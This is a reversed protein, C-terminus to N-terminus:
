VKKISYLSWVKTGKLEKIDAVVKFDAVDYKKDELTLVSYSISIEYKGDDTEKINDIVVEPAACDGGEGRLIYYKGEYYYAITQNIGDREGKYELSHDPEVNFVTKLIEDFDNGDFAAFEYGEDFKKLPDRIDPGYLNFFSDSIGYIEKMDYEISHHLNGFMSGIAYNYANSDSCDFIDTNSYNYNFFEKEYLGDTMDINKPETNIYSGGTFLIYEMFSSFKKKANEELSSESKLSATEKKSSSKTTTTSNDLVSGATTEPSVSETISEKTTEVDATSEKKKCGVFTSLLVSMIVVTTLINKVSKKM